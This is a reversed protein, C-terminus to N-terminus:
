TKQLVIINRIGQVTTDITLRNTAGDVAYTGTAQFTPDDTSQQTWTGTTATGTATYTGTDVITLPPVTVDFAYTTATLTVTGSAGPIVVGAQTFSVVAYTGSFDQATGEPGGDDGCGPFVLLALVVGLARFGPRM